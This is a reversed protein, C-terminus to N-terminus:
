LCLVVEVDPFGFESQNNVQRTDNDILVVDLTGTMVVEAHITETEGLHAHLFHGVASMIADSLGIIFALNVVGAVMSYQLLTDLFDM